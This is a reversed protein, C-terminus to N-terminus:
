LKFPRHRQLWISCSRNRSNSFSFRLTRRSELIYVQSATAVLDDVFFVVPCRGILSAVVQVRFGVQCGNRVTALVPGQFSVQFM